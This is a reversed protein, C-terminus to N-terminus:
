WLFISSLYGLDTANIGFAQTLEQSIPNFVNLQLFEYFFFLAAALCVLWAFCSNRTM